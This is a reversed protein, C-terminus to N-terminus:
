FAALMLDVRCLLRACRMLNQHVADAAGRTLNPGPRGSRPAASTERELQLNWEDPAYAYFHVEERKKAAAV